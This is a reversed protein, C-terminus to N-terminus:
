PGCRHRAPQRAATMQPLSRRGSPVLPVAELPGHGRATALTVKWADKQFSAGPGQPRVRPLPLRDSLGRSGRGCHQTQNSPPGGAARQHASGTTLQTDAAPLPSGCSGRDAHRLGRLEVLLLPRPCKLVFFLFPM